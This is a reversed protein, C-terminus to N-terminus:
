LKINLYFNIIENKQSIYLQISIFIIKTLNLIQLLEDKYM